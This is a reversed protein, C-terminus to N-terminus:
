ALTAAFMCNAHYTRGDIFKSSLVQLPPACSQVQQENEASLVSCTMYHIKAGPKLIRQLQQLIHQQRKTHVALKEDTFYYYQEPAGSWTGSGSCPIDCLIHDFSPLNLQSIDQTLDILKSSVQTHYGYLEMRKHLNHLISERNDSVLLEIGPHMDLLLISKGGSGACCDWWQGRKLPSILSMAQQSSYDQVVVDTPPLMNTIEFRKEFSLCSAGIRTFDIGKKRLTECHEDINRRLRIFFYNTQFLYRFWEDPQLVSDFTFHVRLEIGTQAQLALRRQDFSSNYFPVLAPNVKEFFLVPMKGSLYAGAIMRDRTSYQTQLPGLRYYGYILEAIMKRDRSGLRKNQTFFAKLYQHLPM